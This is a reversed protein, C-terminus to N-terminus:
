QQIPIDQAETTTNEKHWLKWYREHTKITQCGRSSLKGNSMIHEIKWEGMTALLRLIYGEFIGARDKCM